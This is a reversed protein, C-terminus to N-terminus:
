EILGDFWRYAAVFAVASSCRVLATVPSCSAHMRFHMEGHYVDIVPATVNDVCARM